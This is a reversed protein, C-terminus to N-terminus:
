KDDEPDGDGDPLYPLSYEGRNLIFEGGTFDVLAGPHCRLVVELFHIKAQLFKLDYQARELILDAQDGILAGNRWLHGVEKEMRKKERWAEIVDPHPKTRDAPRNKVAVNKM